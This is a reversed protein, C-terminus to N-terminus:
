LLMDVIFFNRRKRRIIEDYFRKKMEFQKMKNRKKIKKNTKNKNKLRKILIDFFNENLTLLFKIKKEFKVVDNEVIFIFNLQYKSQFDNFIKKLKKM